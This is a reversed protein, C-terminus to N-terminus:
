NGLSDMIENIQANIKPIETVLAQLATVDKWQKETKQKLSTILKDCRHAARGNRENNIHLEEWQNQYSEM